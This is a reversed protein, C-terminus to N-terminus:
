RGPPTLLNVGHQPTIGETAVTWRAEGYTEVTVADVVLEGDTHIISMHSPLVLVGTPLQARIAECERRFEEPRMMIGCKIVIM